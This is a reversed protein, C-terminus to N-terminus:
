VYYTIAEELYPLIFDCAEETIRYIVTMNKVTVFDDTKKNNTMFFLEGIKNTGEGMTYYNILSFITKAEIVSNIETINKMIKTHLSLAEGHEVLKTLNESYKHAKQSLLKIELLDSKAQILYEHITAYDTTNFSPEMEEVIKVADFEATCYQAVAEKLKMTRTGKVKAGGETANIVDTNKMQMIVAEFWRLFTYWDHRTKINNGNIDEIFLDISSPHDAIAEQIKGSHSQEGDYAMDNGILIIRHFGLVACIAFAATAVSGGTPINSYDKGTINYISSAFKEYGFIIKKGNHNDLIDPSAELKCLLPVTFGKVNGCYKLQKLADLVVVFDPEIDHAMFTEYARDVAIIISKGKADKLVEINKNLSPGAAAIIVPIDKPLKKEIEWISISDKFHILNTLSNKVIPKGMLGYTNKSVVNNFTNDQLLGKFELYLEPFLRKYGPQVCEVKSFLNMWTLTSSIIYPLEHENIGQIIIMVNDNKIVEELNYEHLAHLFIQLSPEFIILKNDKAMKRTLGQVFIGNGFGFMTYVTDLNKANYQEAWKKAEELPYYKSNLRYNEGDKEIVLAMEQSRTEISSVGIVMDEEALPHKQLLEYLYHRYERLVQMNKSYYM